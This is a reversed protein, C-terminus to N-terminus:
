SGYVENLQKQLTREDKSWAIFAAHKGPHVDRLKQGHQNGQTKTRTENEANVRAQAHFMPHVNALDVGNSLKTPLTVQLKTTSM